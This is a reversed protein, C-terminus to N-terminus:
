PAAGGRQSSAGSGGRDDNGGLSMRPDLVQYAVDVVLNATTLLETYVIVVGM